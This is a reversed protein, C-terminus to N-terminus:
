HAYVQRPEYMGHLLPHTSVVVSAFFQPPQPSTHGVFVFAVATQLLLWHPKTQLCPNAAHPSMQVFVCLSPAFQPVHPM